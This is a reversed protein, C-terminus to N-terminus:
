VEALRRDRQWEVLRRLGESLATQPHYNLLREAKSVDAFTTRLDGPREPLWRIRARRQMVNELAAIVDRLAVLRATGLNFIDYDTNHHLAAVFGNVIDDCYTYDRTTSGDGYVPIEEGADIMSAFKCLALDPRQRPGYVTFLRLCIVPLRYLHSYVYCMREAAIKTAGYPSIPLLEPNDERFPLLRTGGYV